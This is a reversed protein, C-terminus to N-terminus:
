IPKGLISLRGCLSPPFSSSARASMSFGSGYIPLDEIPISRRNCKNTSLFPAPWEEVTAPEWQKSWSKISQKKLEHKEIQQISKPYVDYFVFNRLIFIQKLWSALMVTLNYM